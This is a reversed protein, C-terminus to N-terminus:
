VFVYNGKRKEIILGEDKLIEIVVKLVEKSYNLKLSLFDLSFNEKLNLNFLNNKIEIFLYKYIVYYNGDFSKIGIVEKSKILEEFDLSFKKALNVDKLIIYKNTQFDSFESNKSDNFDKKFNMEKYNSPQYVGKKYKSSMKYIEIENNKLMDKFILLDEKNLLKEFSGEVKDQFTLSKDNLLNLIKKKRLDVSDVEKVSGEEKKSLSEKLSIKLFSGEKELILPKGIFVELDNSEEKSDVNLFYVQNKKVIKM